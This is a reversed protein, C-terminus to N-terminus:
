GQRPWGTTILEQEAQQGPSDPKGGEGLPISVVMLPAWSVARRESPDRQGQGAKSQRQAVQLQDLTSM